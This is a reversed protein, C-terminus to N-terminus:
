NCGSITVTVQRSAELFQGDRTHVVARVSTTEALKLQAAVFPLADPGFHFVAALPQPNRDAFLAISDSGPASSAVVFRVNEGREALEDASITVLPSPTTAPAGYAKLADGIRQASFAARLTEAARALQAVPLMVTALLAGAMARLVRRRGGSPLAQRNM